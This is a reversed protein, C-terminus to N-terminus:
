EDDTEEQEAAKRKRKPSLPGLDFPFEADGESDVNALPLPSPPPTQARKSSSPATAEKKEAAKTSRKAATARTLRGSGELALQPQTTKGPRVPEGSCARRM